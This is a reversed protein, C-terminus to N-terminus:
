CHVNKLPSLFLPPADLFDSEVTNPSLIAIATVMGTKMKERLLNEFPVALQIKMEIENGGNRIGLFLHM